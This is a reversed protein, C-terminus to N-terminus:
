SGTKKGNLHNCTNEVLALVFQRDSRRLSRIHDQVLLALDADLDSAHRILQEVACNLAEALEVLRALTPMVVGREIRSVAEPGIGLAQAVQEQTLGESQRRQAIRAGITAALAKQRKTNVGAPSGHEM